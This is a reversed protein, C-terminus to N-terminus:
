KATLNDDPMAKLVDNLCDQIDMAMKELKVEAFHEALELLSNLTTMRNKAVPQGELLHRIVALFTDFPIQIDYVENILLDLKLKM